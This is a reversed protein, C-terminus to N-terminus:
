HGVGPSPVSRLFRDVSSLKRSRLKVASVTAHVKKSPTSSPIKGKPLAALTTSKTVHPVHSKEEERVKLNEQKKIELLKRSTAPSPSSLVMVAFIIVLFITVRINAM